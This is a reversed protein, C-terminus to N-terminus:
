SAKALGLIESQKSGRNRDALLARLEQGLVMGATEWWSSLPSAWQFQALGLSLSEKTLTAM